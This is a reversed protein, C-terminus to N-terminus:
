RKVKYVQNWEITTKSRLRQIIDQSFPASMTWLWMDCMYFMQTMWMRVLHFYQTSSAPPPPPSIWLSSRMQTRFSCTNQFSQIILSFLLFCWQPVDADDVCENAQHLIAELMKLKRKKLHREIQTEFISETIWKTELTHTFVYTNQKFFFSPILVLSFSFLLLDTSSVEDKFSSANNVRVLDSLFMLLLVKSAKAKYMQLANKKKREIEWMKVLIICTGKIMLTCITFMGGCRALSVLLPWRLWFNGHGQNFTRRRMEVNYSRKASSISLVTQSGLISSGPPRKSIQERVKSAWLM